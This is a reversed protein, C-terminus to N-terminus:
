GGGVLGLGCEDFGVVVFLDNVVQENNKRSNRAGSLGLGGEDFGVVM